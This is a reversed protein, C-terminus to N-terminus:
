RHQAHQQQVGQHYFEIEVDINHNNNKADKDSADHIEDHATMSGILTLMVRQCQYAFM